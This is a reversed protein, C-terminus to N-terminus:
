VLTKTANCLGMCGTEERLRTKKGFSLFYSIENRLLNLLLNRSKQYNLDHHIKLCMLIYEELSKEENEAFIQLYFITM